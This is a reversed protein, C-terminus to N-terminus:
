NKGGAKIKREVMKNIYYLVLGAVITAACAISIVPENKTVFFMMWGTVALFIVPTVPYGWTKYPRTLEPQRFRLIIVGLVTLFSSLSLLVGIYKIIAEFSSTLILAIVVVYQLILSIHPVENKNKISLFRLIKVDEGMVQTVRPGAWIMSSIASILGVSILVGMIVGGTSGFIHNAAIYGVDEQGMMESIPASYMFVANLPVYLLIVIATGLVLSLPLNRGPNKIDSAIYISANWGSYAYMVFVLSVAFPASFITTLDGASPLFSVPQGSALMFGFFVLLFILSIKLGTFVIQFKSVFKVNFFHVISVFTVGIIATLIKTLVISDVSILATDALVQSFYKGMAMSAAAIPASFGVAVSIWGSVFGLSPHYIKSLLHYEGGSRPMSASLEGYSLAGCLAAIGGILWLAAISFGTQIDFVQFGLSTFVGTGIMNAAVIATATYITIQRKKQNDTSM